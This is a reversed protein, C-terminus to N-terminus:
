EPKKENRKEVTSGFTNSICCPEYGPEESDHINKVDFDKRRLCFDWKRM